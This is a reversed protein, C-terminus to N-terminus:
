WFMVVAGTPLHTYTECLNVYMYHNQSCQEEVVYGFCRFPSSFFFFDVNM